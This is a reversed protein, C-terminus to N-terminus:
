SVSQRKIDMRSIVRELLVVVGELGYGDFVVLYQIRPQFGELRERCGRKMQSRHRKEPNLIGEASLVSIAPRHFGPLLSHAKRVRM